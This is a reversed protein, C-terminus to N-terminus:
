GLDKTAQGATSTVPQPRDEPRSQAQTSTVARGLDSPHAGTGHAPAPLTTPVPRGAIARSVTPDSAVPGYVDPEARLVAIDALCDGGLAPTVALDLVIKAPDHVTNPSALAAARDLAAQQARGRPHDQDAASRRGAVRCGLVGHGRGPVPLVM